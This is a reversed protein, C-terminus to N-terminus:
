TKKATAPDITQTYPRDDVLAFVHQDYTSALEQLIAMKADFWHSGEVKGERVAEALRPHLVKEVSKLQVETTADRSELQDAIRSSIHFNTNLHAPPISQLYATQAAYKAAYEPEEPIMTPRTTLFGFEVPVSHRNAEAIISNVLYRFVPRVMFGEDRPIGVNEDVDFLVAVTKGEAAHEAIIESIASLKRNYFTVERQLAAMKAANQEEPTTGAEYTFDEFQSARDWFNDFDDLFAEPLPSLQETSHQAAEAFDSQSPVVSADLALDAGPISLTEPRLDTTISM